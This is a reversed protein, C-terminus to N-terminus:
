NESKPKVPTLKYGSIPEAADSSWEKDPALEGSAILSFSVDITKGLGIIPKGQPDVLFGKMPILMELEHNDSSRASGLIGAIAAMREQPVASAVTSDAVRPNADTGPVENPEGFLAKAIGLEDAAVAAM